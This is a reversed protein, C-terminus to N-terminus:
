SGFKRTYEPSRRRLDLWDSFLEPSQLWVSLWNSIERLQERWADEILTSRSQLSVEDRAAMVLERLETVERTGELRLSELTVMSQFASNLDTVDLLAGAALHGERWRRDFEFVEPHRLVAGEDTLVRAISAPSEVARAGFREAIAIQIEELEAAGVSECDLGEWVEIMLDRKTRARLHKTTTQPQATQREGSKDNNEATRSM